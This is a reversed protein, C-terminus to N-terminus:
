FFITKFAVTITGADEDMQLIADEDMDVVPDEDMEDARPTCNLDPVVM